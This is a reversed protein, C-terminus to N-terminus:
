RVGAGVLGLEPHHPCTLAALAQIISAGLLLIGGSWFSKNM